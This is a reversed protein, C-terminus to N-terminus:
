RQFKMVCAVPNLNPPCTTPDNSHLSGLVTQLDPADRKKQKIFEYGQAIIWAAVEAGHNVPLYLDLDGDGDEYLPEIFTTLVHLAYVVVRGLSFSYRVSGHVAPRIVWIDPHEESSTPAFSPQTTSSNVSVAISTLSQM